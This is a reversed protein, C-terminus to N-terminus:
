SILPSLTHVVFPVSFHMISAATHTGADPSFSFTHRQLIIASLPVILQTIQKIFLPLARKIINELISM